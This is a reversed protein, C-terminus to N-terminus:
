KDILQIWMSVVKEFDFHKKILASAATQMMGREQYHGLYYKIAALYDNVSEAIVAHTGSKVPIGDFSLKSGIVVNGCAMAEVVKNKLGTGSQLPSVVLTAGQYYPIVSPVSSKISVRDDDLRLYQDADRGVITYRIESYHLKITRFVNDYFWQAAQRNPVYNMNGVFLLSLTKETALSKSYRFKNFDIGNPIVNIKKGLVPHKQSFLIKDNSSVYVIEDYKQYIRPEFVRLKQFTLWHYFKSFLNNTSKYIRYYMLTIYDSAIFIRKVRKPLGLENVFMGCHSDAVIVAAYNGSHQKLLPIIAQKLTELNYLKYVLPLPHFLATFARKSFRQSIEFTYVNKCWKKLTTLHETSPKEKKTIPFVLDIEYYENLHSLIPYTIVSWGDRDFPIPIEHTFLLIRNQNPITKM